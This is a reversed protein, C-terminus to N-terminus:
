RKRKKKKKTKNTRFKSRPRGDKNLDEHLELAVKMVALFREFLNLLQTQDLKYQYKEKNATVVNLLLWLLSETSNATIEKFYHHCFVTPLLIDRENIEKKYYGDYYQQLLKGVAKNSNDSIAAAATAHVADILGVFESQVHRIATIEKQRSPDLEAVAICCWELFHEKLYLPTVNKFIIMAGINPGDTSFNIPLFHETIM